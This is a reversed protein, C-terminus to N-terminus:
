RARAAFRKPRSSAADIAAGPLAMYLTALGRHIELDSPVSRTDTMGLPAFIREDLFREFPMGAQRDVVISLLHYGGNNYIAREGVPFNVASQRVQTALAHGPPKFPWQGDALM